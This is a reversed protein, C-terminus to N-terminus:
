APPSPLHARQRELLAEKVDPWDLDTLAYLVTDRVYGDKEIMHRRLVGEFRAGLAEIARQSRLNRADTQLQVRNLRLEEFAFTLLLIKSDLNVGTRFTDPHFWTFGLAARRHLASFESLRTTGIVRGSEKLLVAAAYATGAKVQEFVSGFYAAAEEENRPTSTLAFEDVHAFAFEKLAPLHRESLPELRVLEGTLVADVRLGSM